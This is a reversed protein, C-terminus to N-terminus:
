GEADFEKVQRWDVMRVLVQQRYLQVRRLEVVVPQRAVADTTAWEDIM